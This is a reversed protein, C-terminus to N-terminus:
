SPPFPRSARKRNRRVTSQPRAPRLRVSCTASARASGVYVYSERNSKLRQLEAAVGWGYLAWLDEASAAITPPPPEVYSCGKIATKKMARADNVVGALNQSPGNRQPCIATTIWNTEIEIRAPDAGYGKVLVEIIADSVEGLPQDEPFVRVYNGFSSDLSWGLSKLQGQNLVNRLSPQLRAGSEECFMSLTATRHCQVYINGDWFTAYGDQNARTRAAINALAEDIPPRDSLAQSNQPSLLATVLSLILLKM